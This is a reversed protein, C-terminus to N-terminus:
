QVDKLDRSLFIDECVSEDEGGALGGQHNKTAAMSAPKSRNLEFYEVGQPTKRLSLMPPTLQRQNEREWRGFFLGLYFWATRQLQAPNFNDALGIKRKTM